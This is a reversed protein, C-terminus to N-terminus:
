GNGTVSGLVARAAAEDEALRAALEEGSRFKCEGRLRSVFSVAMRQGYIDGSFGFVHVELTRREGGFTPRMGINMMGGLQRGASPLSVKVAYVGSAPILQSEDDPLINATPFGLRRGIREGAVVTGALMYPYGLCRAAMTVEGECLLSRIVSSSVGVGGVVLPEGRLVEMGMDKGYGVYDDFGDSRGSGFRSDYGTVLVKVGLRKLLVESMFDRATLSAMRRNFPLVVCRDVDTQSLLQIRETFTTLMRPCYESDLVQRPHRDFTVVLSPLSRRAAEETVQRILHRHGCHVGDFFGITAVCAVAESKGEDLTIIDM